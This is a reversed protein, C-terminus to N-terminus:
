LGLLYIEMTQFGYNCKYRLFHRKILTFYFNSVLYGLPDFTIFSKTLEVLLRRSSCNNSYSKVAEVLKLLDFVM